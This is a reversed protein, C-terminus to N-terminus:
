TDDGLDPRGSLLSIALDEQVNKQMEFLLSLFIELERSTFSRTAVEVVDIGAPLLEKELARGKETLYVNIKRKDDSNRVRLVFGSREMLQIASMTTPEMTGVRESLERQTLGDECWLVRLFYWMGLTVGHAEIRVALARQILRHTQRIQYGVSRDLPLVPAPEPVNDSAAAASKIAKSM